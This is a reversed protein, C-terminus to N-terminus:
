NITTSWQYPDSDKRCLHLVATMGPADRSNLSPVSPAILSDERQLSTPEVEAASDKEKDQQKPGQALISEQLDAQEDEPFLEGLEGLSSSAVRNSRCEVEDQETVASLRHDLFPRDQETVSSLRHDLSFLPSMDDEDQNSHSLLLKQLDYHDFTALMILAKFGKRQECWLRQWVQKAVRCEYVNKYAQQEDQYCADQGGFVFLCVREQLVDEMLVCGILQNMLAIINAIRFAWSYQPSIIMLSVFLSKIAFASVGVLACLLQRFIFVLTIFIYGCTTGRLSSESVFYLYENYILAPHVQALLKIASFTSFQPLLKQFFYLIARFARYESKNLAFDLCLQISYLINVCIWTMEWLALINASSVFVSRLQQNKLNQSLNSVEWADSFSSTESTAASANHLHEFGHSESGAVFHSYNQFISVDMAVLFCLNYIVSIVLTLFWLYKKDDWIDEIRDLGGNPDLQIFDDFKPFAESKLRNYEVRALDQASFGLPAVDFVKHGAAGEFKELEQSVDMTTTRIRRHLIPQVVTTRMSQFLEGLNISSDPVVSDRRGTGSRVSAVSSFSAGRHVRGYLGHMSNTSSVESMSHNRSRHASLTNHLDLPSLGHRRDLTPRDLTPLRNYNGNQPLSGMDVNKITSARRCSSMADRERKAETAESPDCMRYFLEDPAQQLSHHMNLKRHSL